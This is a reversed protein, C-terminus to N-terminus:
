EATVDGIGRGDKHLLWTRLISECSTDRYQVEVIRDVPENM